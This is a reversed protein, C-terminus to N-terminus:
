VGRGGGGDWQQQKSFQHSTHTLRITHCYSQSTFEIHLESSGSTDDGDGPRGWRKVGWGGVRGVGKESYGRGGVWGVGSESDNFERETRLM